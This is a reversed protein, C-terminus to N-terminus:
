ELCACVEIEDTDDQREWEVSVHGCKKCRLIHVTVNAYCEIEEYVCPDLENVGDPFIRVGEPFSCRASQM